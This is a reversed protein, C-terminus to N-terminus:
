QLQLPQTYVSSRKMICNSKTPQLAEMDATHQADLLRDIERQAMRIMEEKRLASEVLASRNQSPDATAGSIVKDVLIKGGKM